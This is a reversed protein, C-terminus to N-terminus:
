YSLLEGFVRKCCIGLQWLLMGSVRKKGSQPCFSLIHAVPNFAKAYLVKWMYVIVCINLFSTLHLSASSSVGIFKTSITLSLWRVWSLELKPWSMAKLNHIAISWLVMFSNTFVMLKTQDPYLILKKYGICSQGSWYSLGRMFSLSGWASYSCFLIYLQIM